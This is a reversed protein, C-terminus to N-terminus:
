PATQTSPPAFNFYMKETKLDYGWPLGANKWGNVVRHGREPGEKAKVGEFGQYLTYVRAFGADHLAQAAIPSRSGSSCMLIIPASRQKGRMALLREVAVTFDTNYQRRYRGHVGDKKSQWEWGQFEFIPINADALDTFGVSQVEARSRVDIFLVGDPDASKMAYAEQPDLYLDYPTYWKEPVDAKVAAHLAPAIAALVLTPLLFQRLMSRM